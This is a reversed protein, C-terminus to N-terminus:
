LYGLGKLKKAIAAKDSESYEIKQRKRGKDSKESRIKSRLHLYETLVRGDVDEPIPINLLHLITPMLDIIEVQNCGGKARKIGEGALLFFGDTRHCGSWESEKVPFPLFTEEEILPSQDWGGDGLYFVIDPASTLFPGTYIEEKFFVRAGLTEGTIPHKIKKLAEAIEGRVTLYEKRSVSGNTERGKLNLYIEAGNHGCSFAKTKGWDVNLEFLSRTLPLIKEAVERPIVKFVFDILRLKRLLPLLSLGTINHNILYSRLGQNEKKKLHLYGNELLWNNIAFKGWCPGFGHDSMLIVTTKKNVGKLIQGVADDIKQYVSFISQEYKKSISERYVPHDKDMYRWFPHCVRDTSVYVLIGLDWSYKSALYLFGKTRKEVGEDLSKLFGDKNAAESTPDTVTPDIIYGGNEKLEKGVLIPFAFDKAKPPTMMGSVFVVKELQDPPYTVPINMVLSRKKHRALTEWVAEAHISARSTFEESYRAFVKQKFGFVGHKGPNVGTYFSAWSPMTFPPHTSKLRGFVGEKKLRKINPLCDIWKEILSPEAGDIGIVLVKQKDEKNKQRLLM